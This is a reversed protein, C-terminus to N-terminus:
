HRDTEPSGFHYSQPRQTPNHTDLYPLRGNSEVEMTFVIDNASSFSSM